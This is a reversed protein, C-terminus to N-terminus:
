RFHLQQFLRIWFEDPQLAPYVLDLRGGAYGSLLGIVGGLASGLLTSAVGVIAARRV